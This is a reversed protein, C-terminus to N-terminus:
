KLKPKLLTLHINDKKIAIGQALIGFICVVPDFLADYIDMSDTFFIGWLLMALSLSFACLRDVCYVIAILIGCLLVKYGIYGYIFDLMGFVNLMFLIYIIFLAIFGRYSILLGINGIGHQVLGFLSVFLLLFSPYDFIRYMIDALSFHPMPIISAIGFLIGIFVKLFSGIHLIGVFRIFSLITIVM